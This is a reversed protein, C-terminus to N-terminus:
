AKSEPPDLQMRGRFNLLIRLAREAINYHSLPLLPNLLHFPSLNLSNLKFKGFNALKRVPPCTNQVVRYMGLAAPAAPDLGM